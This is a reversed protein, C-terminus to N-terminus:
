DKSPNSWMKVKPGQLSLMVYCTVYCILKCELIIAVLARILTQRHAAPLLVMVGMQMVSASLLFSVHSALVHVLVPAIILLSAHKFAANVSTVYPKERVVSAAIIM